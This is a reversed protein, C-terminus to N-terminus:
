FEFEMSMCLMFCKNEFYRIDSLLKKKNFEAYYLM